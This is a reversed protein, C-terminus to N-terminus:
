GGLVFDRGEAFGLNLFHKRIAQGIGRKSIFNIIFWDAPQKIDAYHIFNISRNRSPKVDTFGFINVGFQALLDARKRIIKSSGCVVIKKDSNIERKIWNAMYRCKVTFFSEKSYNEHNRSLRDIHDNWRLLPTGIKHFKVGKDMWRLWLEYDEPVNGTDYLGYKAILDKRFMVSPHAIPSEVFRNLFHQESTIIGNQWNTFLRYGENKELTSSFECQTAVVDIDPNIDLFAAQKLLREPFSYDDADMRAILRGAANKLGTNLAFAIGQQPESIMKIRHDSEIWQSAIKLAEDCANNNVLLLEWDTFSQNVISLIADNFERGNNYFPLIISIAPPNVSM